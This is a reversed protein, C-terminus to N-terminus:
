SVIGKSQQPSDPVIAGPCYPHACCSFITPPLGCPPMPSLENLKCFSIDLSTESINTLVSRTSPGFMRAFFAPPRKRPALRLESYPQPCPSPIGAETVLCRRMKNLWPNGPKRMLREYLIEGHTTCGIDPQRHRFRVITKKPHLRCDDYSSVVPDLISVAIDPPEM